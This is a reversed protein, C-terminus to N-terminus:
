LTEEGYREKMGKRIKSDCKIGQEELECKAGLWYPCQINHIVCLGINKARRVKKKQVKKNIYTRVNEPLALVNIRVVENNKRILVITTM